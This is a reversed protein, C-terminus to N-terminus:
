HSHGQNNRPDAGVPFLNFVAVKELLERFCYLPAAKEGHITPPRYSEPQVPASPDETKFVWGPLGDRQIGLYRGLIKLLLRSCAIKKDNKVWVATKDSIVQFNNEIVLASVVNIYM